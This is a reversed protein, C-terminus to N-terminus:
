AEMSDFIIKRLSSILNKAREENPSEVTIRIIPETGSARILAWTYDDWSIRIGDIYSIEADSYLENIKPKLRNILNLKDYCKIKSREIFFSPIGMMLESARIDESDLFNLLIISSLVGDPCKLIKPFIWAGCSEGGFSADRKLAEEVVYPDGVKTRYVIGGLPKILFDIISSSDVNTVIPGGFKKVFYKAVQALTIDQPIVNGKEDIVVLRDGDGDYAFGIDLSKRKVFDCTDKLSEEDPEPGRGPFRGDPDLNIAHVEHNGLRFVLPATLSTTGNGPDICIRWKKRTNFKSVLMEVYEYFGCGDIRSGL